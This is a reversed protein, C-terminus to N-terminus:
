HNFPVDLRPSVGTLLGTPLKVVTLGVVRQEEIRLGAELPHVEADLRELFRARLQQGLGVQDRVPLADILGRRRHWGIGDALIVCFRQQSLQQFPAFLTM